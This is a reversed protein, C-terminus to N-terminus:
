INNLSSNWINHWVNPDWSANWRSVFLVNFFQHSRDLCLYNREPEVVEVEFILGKKWTSSNLNHKLDLRMQRLISSISLCLHVQDQTKFHLRHSLTEFHGGAGFENLKPMSLRSIAIYLVSLGFENVFQPWRVQCRCM